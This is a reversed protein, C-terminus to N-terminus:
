QYPDDFGLQQLIDTELQEMVKADEDEIHDYGQLHLVGHVVMHAWHAEPMKHQQLIEDNIVTTCLAIDGLMMLESEDFLMGDVAQMPFSLVNTPKNIERFEYNLRQIEEADTIRLCVLATNSHRDSDANEDYEYVSGTALGTALDDITSDDMDDASVLKVPPAQNALAYAHTAWEELLMLEPVGEQELDIADSISIEVALSAAQTSDNSQMDSM